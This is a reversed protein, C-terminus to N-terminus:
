EARRLPTVAAANRQILDRTESPDGFEPVWFSLHRKTSTDDLTEDQTIWLILERLWDGTKAHSIAMRLKPHSTPRSNEGTVLLEEYLKEGPRLGTYEIKIEDESYGSLRILDRALNSIKILEGMDLIFIEGGRGMLGAQLVLQTAEPISMFFRRVEPHTVTVPGGRAIQTRFKPVVSGASGLVNGFRVSIFRTKGRHQLCQCVQEALRKTAGMVSTPNVAKDTSILVMKQVGSEIAANAVVYTGLVNNRIAEWCNHEEMLPVHKYAAAHFLVAPRHVDMIQRLRANSKVDGVACVIESAPFKERFEQEIQYLAFESHDMLIIKSPNLEALQRCIESGISGGAGTVMTVQSAIWEKLGPLDLSVPDRGLLDELEVPRLQSVTVKGSMLDQYSPVTMVTLGAENCLEVARRRVQHSTSPLAVIAHRVQLKEAWRRVEEIGGLINIGHVQRHHRAKNDDLMGVIKWDSSHSLERLLTLAASGAGLILVPKAKTQELRAQRSEKWVRYAIRSGAMFLLLLLPDLILVSRPINAVQALAQTTAILLAGSLVASFILRIDPVSAYRWIGRYLRFALFAFMQLPVVWFLSQWASTQYTPPVDLNFRLWFALPWALTAAVVDHTFVLIVRINISLM